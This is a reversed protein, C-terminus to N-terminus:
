ERAKSSGKLPLDGDRRNRIDQLLMSVVLICVAIVVSSDAVNFTPWREMGFIGYFRFDLFDVVGAPRFLRDIQNGTGGGIAAALCWRQVETLVKSGILYWTAGVLALLPIIIIVIVRLVPPLNVGLSFAAGLNTVHVLRFFDKEPGGFSWAISYLPIRAVVLLKTVQDLLVILATLLFCKYKKM